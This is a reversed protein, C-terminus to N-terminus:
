EVFEEHLDAFVNPAITYAIDLMEMAVDRIEWQAAKSCRVKIFHRLERFNMTVVLRTATANPLIYRADEKNVGIERLRKYIDAMYDMAAKWYLMVFDNENNEISPPLVFGADAMDVYRQSEQSYSALRHRVIQHSCARSIESIVFTISAHEIISEHGDKIRAKVFKGDDKGSSRYCIRGAEAIVHEPDITFSLVTVKM